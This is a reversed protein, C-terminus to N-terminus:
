RLSSDGSSSPPNNKKAKKLLSCSHRYTLFAIEKVRFHVVDIKKRTQCCMLWFPPLSKEFGGSDKQLKPIASNSFRSPQLCLLSLSFFDFNGRNKRAQTEKHGSHSFSFAAIMLYRAIFLLCTSHNTTISRAICARFGIDISIDMVYM